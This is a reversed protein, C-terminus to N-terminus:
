SEVKTESCGLICSDTVNPDKELHIEAQGGAVHALEPTSLRRLTQRSLSLKKRNNEVKKM